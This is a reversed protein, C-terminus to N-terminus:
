RLPVRWVTVSYAPVTTRVPSGSWALEVPQPRVREPEELSNEDLLSGSAMQWGRVKGASVSGVVDLEISRAQGYGNVVKIVAENASRDIGTAAALRPQPQDRFEEVLRGDLTGRVVSGERVLRIDYWRGAEISGEVGAGTRQGDVQFAHAVNGWGGLNWQLQRDPGVAFMIIFGERGELKRARLRLEVKGEAPLELGPLLVRRDEELSTQRIVGGEHDWEGRQPELAGARAVVEGDVLLEIDAFEAATRWTQLGVRGVIPDPAPLDYSLEHWVNVDPRHNAFLWQVWYSPTGYSRSADFVVANPNWQKNGLHSLLPAYSALRVVDSNRELGTMFAAEGLAAALNGQGCGQTVAYEGVYVGPGSRDYGDYKSVNRWFFSPNSYYHEDILNLPHRTPVGGWVCAILEIEPYKAEIAKAMLAYREDYAPGGNENGIQVYRLNFPATRGQAARKAGWTSTTPGIAYEIADLADQVYTGMGEMPAVESHSMGCNVVFLAEADLDECWQLWEHYGFGNSTPYGWLIRQMPKRQEIPGISDKWRFAQALDHGEVFCGGPFRVFAPRLAAIKDALDPRLGNRSDAPMLSAMGLWADGQTTELRLSAGVDTAGPTLVAGSPAGPQVTTAALVEGQRGVLTARVPSGELWLRLQYSAGERVSIGWFGANGVSAPHELRLTWPRADNLPADRDLEFRGSSTWGDPLRDGVAGEFGRNRLLEAYMGGEGGQNIEEFFIGYLSPSVEVTPRTADVKLHILDDSLAGLALLALVFM